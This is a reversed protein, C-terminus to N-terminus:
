VAVCKCVAVCTTTYLCSYGVAISGREVPIGAPPAHEKNQKELNLKKKLQGSVPIRYLTSRREYLDPEPRAAGTVNRRVHQIAGTRDVRIVPAGRGRVERVGLAIDVAFKTWRVDDDVQCETLKRNAPCRSCLLQDM